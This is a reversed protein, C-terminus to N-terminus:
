ARLCPEYVAEIDSPMTLGLSDALRTMGPILDDNGISGDFTFSGQVLEIATDLDREDALQLERLAERLVAKDRRILRLSACTAERMAAATDVDRDHNSLSVALGTTPLRVRDGVCLLSHFGSDSMLRPPTASSILAAAADGALMRQLRTADDPAAELCVAGDPDLGADELVIRLFHSPPAASPYTAIRRGQLSELSNIDGGAYLWFMPRATAVALIKM